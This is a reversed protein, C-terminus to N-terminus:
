PQSTEPENSDLEFEFLNLEFGVRVMPTNFFHVKDMNFNELLKKLM